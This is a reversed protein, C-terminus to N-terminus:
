DFKADGNDRSSFQREKRCVNVGEITNVNMQGFTLGELSEENM